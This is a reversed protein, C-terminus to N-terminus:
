SKRRGFFKGCIQARIQTQQNPFPISETCIRVKREAAGDFPVVVLVSRSAQSALQFVNPSVRADVPQFDQDYVHIEVRIKRDYPNAPFVRVAFVDTFSNIEGRMPSMSQAKAAIPALGVALATALIRAHKM